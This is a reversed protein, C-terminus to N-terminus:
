FPLVKFARLIKIAVCIVIACVATFVVALLTNRQGSLKTTDVKLAVMEANKESMMSVMSQEYENFRKSLLRYNAREEALQGTLKEAEAQHNEARARLAQVQLVIAERNEGNEPAAIISIELAALGETIDRSGAQIREGTVALDTQNHQIEREIDRYEGARGIIEPAAGTSKCGSGCTAALIIIILFFVFQKIM